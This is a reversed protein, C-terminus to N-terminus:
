LYRICTVFEAEDVFVHQVIRRKLECPPGTAGDVLTSGRAHGALIESYWWFSFCTAFTQSGNRKNCFIHMYLYFLKVFQSLNMKAPRLEISGFASVIM